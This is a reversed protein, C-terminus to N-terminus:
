QQVGALPTVIFPPVGFYNGLLAESANGHPGVVAVSLGGRGRGRGRRAPWRGHRRLRREVAVLAAAEDEAEDDDDDDDDNPALSLPLAQGENKLLVIGQRAAKLALAQHDASNLKDLGYQVICVVIQTHAVYVCGLPGKRGMLLVRVPRGGVWRPTRRRRARTSCAWASSSGSCIGCRRTWM